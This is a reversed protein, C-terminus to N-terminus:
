GNASEINKIIGISKLIQEVSWVIEYHGCWTSSLEIQSKKVSSKLPKGTKKSIAKPSKIEFWYTNGRYGVLIDDHGKAISLGPIKELQEVIGSQNDDVRAARRYKSM